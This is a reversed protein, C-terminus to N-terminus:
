DDHSRRREQLIRIAERNHLCGACLKSPAGGDPRSAARCVDCEMFDDVAQVLALWSPLYLAGDFGELAYLVLGPYEVRRAVVYTRAPDGVLRVRDGPQYVRETRASAAAAQEYGGDDGECRNVFAMLARALRAAQDKDLHPAHDVRGTEGDKHCFVWVHLGGVQSSERVVVRHGHSDEFDAFDEFGRSTFSRSRTADSM